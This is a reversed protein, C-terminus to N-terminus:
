RAARNPPLGLGGEEIRCRNEDRGTGPRSPAGPTTGPPAVRMTFTGGDACLVTMMLPSQAALYGVTVTRGDMVIEHPRAAWGGASLLLRKVPGRVHDLVPVLVRLEADLDTSSFWWDADLSTRRSGNPEPQVQPSACPTPSHPQYTPSAM